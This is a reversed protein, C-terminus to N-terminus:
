VIPHCSLLVALLYLGSGRLQVPNPFRVISSMLKAQSLQILRGCSSNLARTAARFPVRGAAVCFLQLARPNKQDRNDQSDRGQGGALIGLRWWNLDSGDGDRGTEIDNGSEFSPLLVGVAREVQYEPVQVPVVVFDNVYGNARAIRDFGATGIATLRRM